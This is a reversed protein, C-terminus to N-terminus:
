LEACPLVHHSPDAEMSIVRPAGDLVTLSTLTNKFLLTRRPKAGPTPAQQGLESSVEAAAM